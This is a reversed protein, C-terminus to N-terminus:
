ALGYYFCIIGLTDFFGHVAVLLWLDYKRLYFLVSLLAAVTGTLLQGTVGQQMHMFGFFCSFLIINISLSIKSEGFFNVFQKMFFGRFIIEEGFASTAWVVALAVLCAQLNGEMYDLYSFDIPIGTLKTIGPLLVFVYIAFLVLAVLPALVLINKVTFNERQFGLAVFPKRNHTIYNAVIIIISIIINEIISRNIPGFWMFCIFVTTILPISIQRFTFKNMIKQNEIRYLDSNFVM